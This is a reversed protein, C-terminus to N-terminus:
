KVNKEGLFRQSLFAFLDEATNFEKSFTGDDSIFNVGGDMDNLDVHVRGVIKNNVLINDGDLRIPADDNGFERLTRKFGSFNELREMVAKDTAISKAKANCYDAFLAKAADYDNSAVKNIFDTLVTKDM